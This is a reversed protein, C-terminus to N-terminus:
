LHLRLIWLIPPRRVGSGLRTGFPLELWKSFHSSCFCTPPPLCLSLSIFQKSRNKRHNTNWCKNKRPLTNTSHQKINTEYQFLLCRPVHHSCKHLTWSPLTGVSTRKSSHSQFQFVKSYIRNSNHPTFPRKLPSIWGSIQWHMPFTIRSQHNVIKLTGEHAFPNSYWKLM